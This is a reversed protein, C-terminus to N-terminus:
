NKQTEDTDSTRENLKHILDSLEKFVAGVEDDAEFVGKDNVRTAFTGKSDIARMLAYTDNVDQKFDIIWKEYTDNKLLLNRIIVCLSVVLVVLITLGAILFYILM